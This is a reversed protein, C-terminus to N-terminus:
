VTVMILCASTVEVCTFRKRSLLLWKGDCACCSPVSPLHFLQWLLAYLPEGQRFIGMMGQSRVCHNSQMHHPSRSLGSAIELVRKLYVRHLSQTQCLVASSETSNLLCYSLCWTRPQKQRQTSAKTGDQLHLCCVQLREHLPGNNGACTGKTSASLQM